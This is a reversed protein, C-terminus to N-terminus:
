LCYCFILDDNNFTYAFNFYVDHGTIKWPIVTESKYRFLQLLFVQKKKNIYNCINNHLRLYIAKQM